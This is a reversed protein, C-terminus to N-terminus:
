CRTDTKTEKVAVRGGIIEVAFKHEIHCVDNGVKVGCIVKEITETRLSPRAMRVTRYYKSKVVPVDRQIMVEHLPEEGRQWGVVLRQSTILVYPNDMSLNVRGGITITELKRKSLIAMVARVKRIM